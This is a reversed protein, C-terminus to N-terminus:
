TFKYLADDLFYASFLFTQLLRSIAPDRMSDPLWNCIAPGAVSFAWRGYNNLRHRPM